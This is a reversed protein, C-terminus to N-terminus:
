KDIVTTYLQARNNIIVPIHYGDTIGTNVSHLGHKNNVIIWIYAFAKSVTFKKKQLNLQNDTKIELVTCKHNSLNLLLIPTIRFIATM